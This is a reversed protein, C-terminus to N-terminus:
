NDGKPKTDLKELFFTHVNTTTGDDWKVTIRHVSWGDVVTGCKGHKDMVRDGENFIRM